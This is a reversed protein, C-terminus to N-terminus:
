QLEVAFKASHGFPSPHLGSSYMRTMIGKKLLRLKILQMFWGISLSM